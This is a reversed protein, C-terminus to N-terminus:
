HYFFNSLIPNQNTSTKGLQMDGRRTVITPAPSVPEIVAQLSFLMKLSSTATVTTSFLLPAPPRNLVFRLESFGKNVLSKPACYM